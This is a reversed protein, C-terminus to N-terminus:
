LYCESLIGHDPGSLLHDNLSNGRFRASCDFVVRLKFLKRPHYVGHHPIYYVEGPIMPKDALEADGDRIMGEIFQVYHEKYKPDNNLRRGLHFLRREALKRNNPLQPRAAFPLPMEIHGEKNQVISSELIQLFQLDSQSLCVDSYKLDSFDSELVKLVDSPTVVPMEKVSVRHCFGRVDTCDDPALTGVISWGLDTKVAYPQGVEGTIVQRPALARRCNYGILLGVKLV